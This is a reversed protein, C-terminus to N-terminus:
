SNGTNKGEKKKDYVLELAEKDGIGLARILELENEFSQKFVEVSPKNGVVEKLFIYTELAEIQPGHLYAVRKIHALINETEKYIGTYGDERWKAVQAQINQLFLSDM